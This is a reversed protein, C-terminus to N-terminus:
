KTKVSRKKENHEDRVQSRTQLSLSPYQGRWGPSNQFDSFEHLTKQGCQAPSLNFKYNSNTNSSPFLIWVAMTTIDKLAGNVFIKLKASFSM